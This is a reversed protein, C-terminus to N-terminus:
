IHILSLYHVNLVTGVRYGNQDVSTFAEREAYRANWNACAHIASRGSTARFWHESRPLWFLKGTEPEYRLLQRLVEPSPLAKRDHPESRRQMVASSTNQTM